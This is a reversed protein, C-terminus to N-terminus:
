ATDAWKLSGSAAHGGRLSDRSGQDAGFALALGDNGEGARLWEEAGPGGVLRLGQEDPVPQLVALPDDAGLEAHGALRLPSGEADTLRDVAAQGRAHDM